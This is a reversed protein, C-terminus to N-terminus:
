GEVKDAEMAKKIEDLAKENIREPTLESMLTDYETEEILEAQSSLPADMPNKLSGDAIGTVDGFFNETGLWFWKGEEGPLDILRPDENSVGETGAQVFVSIEQYPRGDFKGFRTIEKRAM